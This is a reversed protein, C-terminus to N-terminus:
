LNLCMVLCMTPLEKETATPYLKFFTELFETVEETTAANVTGDSEKAKPEYSSKTPTSSIPPTIFFTSLNNELIEYHFWSFLSFSLTARLYSLSYLTYATFSAFSTPPALAVLSNPIGSPVMWVHSLATLAPLSSIPSPEWVGVLALLRASSIVINRLRTFSCSLSIGRRFSSFSNRSSALAKKAALRRFDTFILSHHKKREPRLVAPDFPFNRKIGTHKADVLLSEVFIEGIFVVGPLILTQSVYYLFDAALVFAVKSIFTDVLRSL